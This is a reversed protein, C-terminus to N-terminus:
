GDANGPCKYGRQKIAHCLYEIVTICLMLSNTLSSFRRSHPFVSRFVTLGKKKRQGRPWGTGPLPPDLPARESPHTISLSLIVYVIYMSDPM